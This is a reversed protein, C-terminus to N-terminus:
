RVVLDDVCSFCSLMKKITVMVDLSCQSWGIVYGLSPFISSPHIYKTRLQTNM